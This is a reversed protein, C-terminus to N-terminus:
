HVKQSFVMKQETGFRDRYIDLKRIGQNNQHKADVESTIIISKKYGSNEEYVAFKSFSDDSVKEGSMNNNFKDTFKHFNIGHVSPISEM